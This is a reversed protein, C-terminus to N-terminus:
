ATPTLGGDIQRPVLKWNLYAITGFYAAGLGWCVIGALSSITEVWTSEVDSWLIRSLILGFLIACFGLFIAALMWLGRETRWKECCRTASGFMMAWGAFMTLSYVDWYLCIALLCMGALLAHRGTHQIVWDLRGVLKM